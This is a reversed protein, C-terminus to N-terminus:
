GSCGIGFTKGAQEDGNKDNAFAVVVYYCRSCGGASWRFCFTFYQFSPNAAPVVVMCLRYGPCPLGVGVMGFGIGWGISFLFLM